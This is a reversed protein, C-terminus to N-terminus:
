KEYLKSYMEAHKFDEITDIDVEGYPHDLIYPYSDHTQIIGKLASEISIIYLLGNEFYIKEMDQSREGFKYNLPIMSHGRKRLLKKNSPSYSVLSNIKCLDFIKLAELLFGKPRLPNTPQLLVICDCKIERDILYQAAHQIVDSSTATDSALYAPRDIVDAGFQRAVDKIEEDDTSVYVLIGDIESKAYLISHALLPKDVFNLLNKRPLRKSGGRATIIVIPNM